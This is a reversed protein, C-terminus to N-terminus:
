AKKARRRAIGLGALGLGFLGITAPESVVIVQHPVYIKPTMGHIADNYCSMTWDASLNFGKSFDFGSGLIQQMDFTATRFYSTNTETGVKDYTREYNTGHYIAKQRVQDTTSGHGVAGDIGAVLTRDHAKSAWETSGNTTGTDWHGVEYIGADGSGSLQTSGGQRYTALGFDLAYSKGNGFNLKMDGLYNNDVKGTYLNFGTQLGVSLKKTTKDFKYFLYEADYGHHQRALRYNNDNTNYNVLGDNNYKHQASNYSGSVLGNNSSGHQYYNSATGKKIARVGSRNYDIHYNRSFDAKDFQTWGGQDWHSLKGASAGASVAAVALTLVSKAFVSKM